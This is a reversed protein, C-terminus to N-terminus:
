SDTSARSTTLTSSLRPNSTSASLLCAARTLIQELALPTGARGLERIEDVYEECNVEVPLEYFKRPYKPMKRIGLTVLRQRLDM